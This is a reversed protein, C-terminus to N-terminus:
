NASLKVIMGKGSDAVFLASDKQVVSTPTQFLPTGSEDLEWIKLLKGSEDFKQIRRNGTDAVILSGSPDLIMGQPANLLGPEKGEGGFSSRFKGDKDFIKILGHKSDLVWIAEDSGFQCATPLRFQDNKDGLEGIVSILKFSQFIQIRHNRTDAVLMRDRPGVCIGQPTAFLGGISGIAGVIKYLKGSPEFIQIRCNNSDVIYVLNNSDTIIGKPYNFSGPASGPIGFSDLPQLSDNLRFVRYLSLDTVFLFGRSDFCLGFPTRIVNKQAEFYPVVSTLKKSVANSKRCPLFSLAGAIGISKIFDRRNMANYFERIGLPAVFYSDM